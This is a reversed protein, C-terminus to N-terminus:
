CSSPPASASCRTPCLSWPMLWRRVSPISAAFPARTRSRWWPAGLAARPAACSEFAGELAASQEPGKTTLIRKAVIEPLNQDGLTITGYRGQWHNLSDHLRANEAGTHIKGVMEALDRQSAIFSIIPIRRDSEQAEVLKVMKQVENHLWSSDSARHSLWLILEDLFLTIGAYGLQAAHRAMIALGSDLDVYQRAEAISSRFWSKALASFLLERQQPDTSASLEDFRERNWALTVKGWGKKPGGLAAFFKEDGLSELLRRADGFVKEDAFLGPILADPHEAQVFAVYSAFIKEELSQAGIM